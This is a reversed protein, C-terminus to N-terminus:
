LGAANVVAAFRPDAALPRLLPEVNLQLAARSRTALATELAGIADDDRGLAALLLAGDNADAAGIRALAELEGFQAEAEAARGAAALACGLAARAASAGGSEHVARELTPLAAGAAGAALQSKGQVVLARWDDPVVERARVAAAIAEEFRGAFYLREALNRLARPSLPDLQTAARADAIAEEARGLAGLMESRWARAYACSPDLALARELAEAGASWDHDLVLTALGLVANPEARAGDYERAKGARSRARVRNMRGVDHGTAVDALLCHALAMGEWADPSQPDIGSAQQFVEVAKSLSDAHEHHLLPRAKFCVDYVASYTGAPATTDAAAKPRADLKLTRAVQEATADFSEVLDAIEATRTETWIAAGDSQQVLQLTLQTNQADGTASLALAYAAGLSAAVAAPSEQGAHRAAAISSGSAIVGASAPLRAGLARAMEHALGDRL